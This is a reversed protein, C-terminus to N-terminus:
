WRRAIIFEAMSQLSSKAPSDPLDELNELAGRVYQRASELSHAISESGAVLRRLTAARDRRGNTLAAAAQDRQAAPATALFHILPLTLKAEDLDRGLTKGAEEETGIIDLVDDVIQFAMGVNLGFSEFSAIVSPSAGAHRAGLVCCTSTLSATKRAIIRRYEDQSLSINGRHFCQMLEGECVTNTTSGILRSAEQSNLSSCLHFAHSILYDGFLVAAENGRLLNVTPLRRRMEAEDLVDDHVLTAMHVLEVVAGLVVHDRTTRGCAQGSLLVLAPRLMKGRYSGVHDCLTRVFPWDTQLEDEFTRRVQEMQAAIPEYLAALHPM